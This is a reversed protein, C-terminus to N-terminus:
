VCQCRKVRCDTDGNCAPRDAGSMFVAYQRMYENSDKLVAVLPGVAPTGIQELASESAEAYMLLAIRSRPSSHNSRM